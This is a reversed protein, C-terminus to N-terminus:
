GCRVGSTPSGAGARFRLQGHQCRDCARELLAVLRLAVARADGGQRLRDGLPEAPLGSAETLQAETRHHM